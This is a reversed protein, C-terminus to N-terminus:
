PFYIQGTEINEIRCDCNYGKCELDPSQPLKDNRAWVKAPKAAENSYALCDACHKVTNGLFWKSLNENRSMYAKGGLWALAAGWLVVRSLVDELMSRREDAAELAAIGAVTESFEGVHKLQGTIWLLIIGNDEEAEEDDIDELDLGAAILGADYILPAYDRVLQEHEDSLNEGSDAARRVLARLAREYRERITPREDKAKTRAKVLRKREPRASAFESGLSAKPQYPTAGWEVRKLGQNERWENITIAGRELQGSARLWEDNQSERLANVKTYDTILSENPALLRVKRFYKTTTTDRLSALPMITLSYLVQLAATRKVETDYSDNGFGMLIDPVGFMGGIEDRSLGRQAVWEMDKPPFSLVKVDSVGTELVIPKHSQGVGGFKQELKKEIDDREANTLGAPAIVAYDPRASNYFFM